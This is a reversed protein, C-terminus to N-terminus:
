ESKVELHLLSTAGRGNDQLQQPAPGVGLNHKGQGLPSVKEAAVAVNASFFAVTIHHEILQQQAASVRRSLVKGFSFGGHIRSGGIQFFLRRLKSRFKRGFTSFPSQDIPVQM